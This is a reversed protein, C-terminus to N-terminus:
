ERLAARVRLDRQVNRLDDRLEQASFYPEMSTWFKEADFDDQDARLALASSM